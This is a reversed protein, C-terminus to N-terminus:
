VPSSPSSAPVIRGTRSSVFKNLEEGSIRYKKDSIKFFIIKGEQVYIKMSSYSIGLFEAAERLSYFRNEAIPM